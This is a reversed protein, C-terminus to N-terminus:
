SQSRRRKNTGLFLYDPGWGLGQEFKWRADGAGRCESRTNPWHVAVPSDNTVVVRLRATQTAGESDTVELEFRLTGSSNPAVVTAIASNSNQLELEPSGLHSWAFSLTGGEPDNSESGDLKIEAGRPVSSPGAIVVEPSGNEVFVTVSDSNSEGRSDTVVLEFVIQGIEQPAQFEIMPSDWDQLEVELGSELSWSYALDDGDADWSSVADLAVPAGRLVRKDGGADAVPAFSSLTITVTDSDSAGTQDSVVVEFQLTAAEAPKAFTAIPSTASAELTVDPGELQVWSYVLPELDPDRSM